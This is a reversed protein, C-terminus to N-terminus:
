VRGPRTKYLAGAGNLWRRLAKGDRLIGKRDLDMLVSVPINAVLHQRGGDGRFRKADTTGVLAKRRDYNEQLIETEDQETVIRVKDGDDEWWRRIRTLPDANFLKIGM